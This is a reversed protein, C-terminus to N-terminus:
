SAGQGTTARTNALDDMFKEIKNMQEVTKQQQRQNELKDLMKTREIRKLLVKEDTETEEPQIKKIAEKIMRKPVFQNRSCYLKMNEVPVKKESCGIKELITFLSAEEKKETRFPLFCLNLGKPLVNFYTSNRLWSLKTIKKLPLLSWHFRHYPDGQIVNEWFAVTVLLGHLMEM